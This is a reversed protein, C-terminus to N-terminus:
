AGLSERYKKAYSKVCDLEDASLAYYKALCDDIKDITKRCLKHKYEFNAQKTNIEAKTSELEGELQKALVALTDSRFVDAPIRFSELEKRTIHWCDSVAIWHWWFLSSNLIALIHWRKNEDFAFGKFERSEVPFSFAKIWFCARMNLFLNPQAYLAQGLLGDRKETHVKAYVGVERMHSLKPYYSSDTPSYRATAINEFLGGREENYWFNYNSTYIEHPKEGKKASLISLKHHVGTFLCAPRDAFNFISQRETREQIYQRISRMRSTSVYSIPVIFGITGNKALLDVSNQLVNAYINGYKVQPTVASKNDEVYPPNGVIFDFKKNFREKRVNIFDFNTLNRNLIETVATYKKVSVYKTLEFFLRIKCIEIASLDIDNGHLSAILKLYDNDTVANVSAKLRNVKIRLSRLLFEGSGVTPDLLTKNLFGDLEATNELSGSNAYAKNNVKTKSSICNALIFDIVDNPTNYIGNAKRVAQKENLSSLAAQFQEAALENELFGRLANEDFPYKEYHGNLLSRLAKRIEKIKNRSASVEACCTSTQNNLVATKV